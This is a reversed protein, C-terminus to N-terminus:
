THVLQAAHNYMSSPLLGRMEKLILVRLGQSRARHWVLDALLALLTAQLLRVSPRALFDFSRCGFLRSLCTISNLCLASVRGEWCGSIAFFLM